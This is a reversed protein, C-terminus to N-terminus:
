RIKLSDERDFRLDYNYLPGHDFKSRITQIAYVAIKVEIRPPRDFARKDGMRVAVVRMIATFAIQCMRGAGIDHALAEIRRIDVSQLIAFGDGDVTNMHAEMRGPM